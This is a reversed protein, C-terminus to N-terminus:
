FFVKIFSIKSHRPSKHPSAPASTPLPLTSARTLHNPPSGSLSLSRLKTSVSPMEEVDDISLPEDYSKTSLVTTTFTNTQIPSTPLDPIQKVFGNVSRIQRHHFSFVPPQQPQESQTPEATPKAFKPDFPDFLVVASSEDLTKAVDALAKQKYMDDTFFFDSTGWSSHLSLNTNTTSSFARARQKRGKMMLMAPSMPAAPISINHVARKLEDNNDLSQNNVAVVIKKPPERHIVPLVFSHSVLKKKYKPFSDEPVDKFFDEQPTNEVAIDGILVSVLRLKNYDM